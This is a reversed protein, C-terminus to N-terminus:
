RDAKRRTRPNTGALTPTADPTPDGPRPSHRVFKLKM